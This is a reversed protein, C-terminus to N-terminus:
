NTSNGVKEHWNPPALADKAPPQRTGPSANRPSIRRAPGAAGKATPQQTRLLYLLGNSVVTKYDGELHSQGAGLFALLALATAANRAEKFSGQNRCEGMCEGDRHDFSWSGDASQHRAIWDLANEIALESEVTAGLTIADRRRDARGALGERKKNAADRKRPLQRDARDIATQLEAVRKEILTKTLGNLEPLATEYWHVARGLLIINIEIAKGDATARFANALEVQEESVQPKALDRKCLSSLEPDNSKALYGAGRDWSQVVFCYFKGVQLNAEQDDPNQALRATAPQIVSFERSLKAVQDALIKASSAAISDGSNRAGALAAEALREAIEYRDNAAADLVLSEAVYYLARADVRSLKRAFLGELKAAQLQLGDVIFYTEITEICSLVLDADGDETAISLAEDILAYQGAPDDTTESAVTLFRKALDARDAPSKAMSIDEAFLNVVQRKARALAAEEPLEVRAVREPEVPPPENPNAAPRGKPAQPRVNNDPPRPLPRQEDDNKVSPNPIKGPKAGNSSPGPIEDPTKTPPPPLDKPAKNAANDPAAAVNPKSENSTPGGNKDANKDAAQAATPSNQGRPTPLPTQQSTSASTEEAPAVAAAEGNAENGGELWKLVGIAAAAFLIVTFLTSAVLLPLSSRSRHRASTAAAIVPAAQRRDLDNHDSDQAGIGLPIAAAPPPPVYEPVPPSSWRSNAAAVQRRLQEDYISKSVPDLLCSQAAALENLLAQSEASYPGNQAMRVFAMRQDCAAVIADPHNEFLSLGLLRYFHPPQEHPPIQLWRYYPDIKSAV